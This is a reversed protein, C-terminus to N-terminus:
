RGMGAGPSRPPRQLTRDPSTRVLRSEVNGIGTSVAYRLAGSESRPAGGTFRMVVVATDDAQAGVQFEDLAALLRECVGEPEEDRADALLRQLREHGFREGDRGVTDTVGDTFAVLAEGPQMAFTQEPWAVTPSGGLLTGYAGAERAGDESLHIPPPHGGCAVTCESGSLRLCLATCVPLGPRRKLAADIRGLIAAPRRDYDSATWATHRVLSTAAAARVGKGTVDGIMMIWDEGAEWLDYFDGGVVTEEGVPRYFAAVEWGPLEPLAEPLLSRQLTRAVEVRGTYLRSNEVALAAREAIQAAFEVDRQDLVRGSDASVLTLAGLTRGAVVMPVIAVSRMGVARLLELHEDDVAAAVLLDDPVESYMLPEGTRAVRGLGREPDLQEPEYARLRSAMELKAPDMHAVAVPERAGDSGFLDVACWDAIQPVAIGAVNRLTQQYDLSSALIQSVRALFEMNLAARKSETVDEIITVAAQVAGADDRLAAAKLLVWNEQGDPDVSRLLLPKPEEGRLLRVSPLDDM